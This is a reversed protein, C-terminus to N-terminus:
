IVLKIPSNGSCRPCEPESKDYINHCISCEFRTEDKTVESIDMEIEKEPQDKGCYRCLIAESKILEACFPCKKSDGSAVAKEEIIKRDEKAILVAIFGIFPSLLLSLFFYDWFSKGKGNAAMGSLICLVIWGIIGIIM